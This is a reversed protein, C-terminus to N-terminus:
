LIETFSSMGEIYKFHDKYNMTRPDFLAALFIEAQESGIAKLITEGDFAMHAWLQDHFTM